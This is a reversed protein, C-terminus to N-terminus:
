AAEIIPHLVKRTRSWIAKRMLHDDADLGTVLVVGCFSVYAALGALGLQVWRHTVVAFNAVLVLSLIAAAFSPLLRVYSRNYPLLHLQEYAGKLYWLNVLINVTAAAFAAGVIGFPHILALDLFITVVATVAQIKLLHKENGSMLLLSGASGVACNVFQGVTGVVLVSWGPEFEPGFIGMLSRSFIILTAALPFTLALIWKTLTQFMRGVMQLEGRAHLDSVIPAFIQNVSQLIMPVFAAMGSALAYIGVEKPNLYIGLFVKDAHLILFGLFEMILVTASFSIVRSELAPVSGSYSRTKNPTLRWVTVALLIFVVGDAVAQAILYGRLGWGCMVFVVTCVMMLPMGLFMTLMTSRAVQKYGALVRSFFTNFTATCMLLAFIWLYHSLEPTHYIHTAIYPGGALLIPVFLLNTFLLMLLSRILLGRLLDFRGTACYAAVFKTASRSLGFANFIGLSGIITLGLAYMGLADAGLKRALYVKFFYGAALTFIRGSFYASSQRSVQGIHRQFKSSNESLDVASTENTIREEVIEIGGM